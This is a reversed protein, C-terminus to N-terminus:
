KERTYNDVVTMLKLRRGDYFADSMSVWPGSKTPAVLVSWAAEGSLAVAQNSANLGCNDAGRESYLRYVHKHDIEWCERRLLVHIGKYGYRIRVAASKASGCVPKLRITRQHVTTTHRAHAQLVRCAHRISVDYNVRLEDVLENRRAPKIIKSLVDQLMVKDLSPDAVLRKLKRNEEELMKTKAFGVRGWEVTNRM